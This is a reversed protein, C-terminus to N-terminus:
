EARLAQSDHNAAAELEGRFVLDANFASDALLCDQAITAANHEPIARSRSVDIASIDGHERWTAVDRKGFNACRSRGPSIGSHWICGLTWAGPRTAGIKCVVTAALRVSPLLSMLNVLPASGRRASTIPVSPLLIAVGKEPLVWQASDTLSLISNSSGGHDVVDLRVAAILRQEPIWVIM